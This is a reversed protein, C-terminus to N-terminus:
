CGGPCHQGCTAYGAPLGWDSNTATTCANAAGQPCGSVAASPDCLQAESSGGCSAKCESAPAGHSLYGCCVTGVACDAAGRCTLPGADAAPLADRPADVSADSAGVGSETAADPPLPGADPVPVSDVFRYDDSLGTVVGCGVAGVTFLACSVAAASFKRRSSLLDTM